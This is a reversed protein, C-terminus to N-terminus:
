SRIFDCTVDECKVDTACRKDYRRIIAYIATETKRRAMWAYRAEQSDPDFGDVQGNRRVGLTSVRHIHRALTRAPTSPNLARICKIALTASRQKRRLTECRSKLRDTLITAVVARSPAPLYRGTIPDRLLIDIRIDQTIATALDDLELLSLTIFPTLQNHRKPADSM